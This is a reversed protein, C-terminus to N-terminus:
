FKDWILICVFDTFVCAAMNKDLMKRFVNQLRFFCEFYNIERFVCNKGAAVSIYGAILSLEIPISKQLGPCINFETEVQQPPFLWIFNLSVLMYYIQNITTIENMLNGINKANQIVDHFVKNILEIPLVTMILNWQNKQLKTHIKFM